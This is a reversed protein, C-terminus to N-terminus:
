CLLEGKQCVPISCVVEVVSDAVKGLKANIMGLLHLYKETEFEYQEGSSFVENTVVVVSASSKVLTCIPEVIAEEIKEEWEDENEKSLYTLRGTQQYMENALLNSMCELLIVDNKQVSINELNTYCEITSFGKEKRMERHRAIRKLCENDFPYMTAIYYLNGKKETQLQKQYLSTVVTEAYSSKGSSSGGTVIVLM